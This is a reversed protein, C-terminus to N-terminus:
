QGHKWAIAARSSQAEPASALPSPYWLAVNDMVGVGSARNSRTFPTAQGMGVMFMM